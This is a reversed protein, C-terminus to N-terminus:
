DETAIMQELTEKSYWRRASMVGRLYKINAVDELPCCEERSIERPDGTAELPLSHLFPSLPGITDQKNNSTKLSNKLSFQAKRKAGKNALKARSM